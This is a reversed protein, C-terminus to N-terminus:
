TKYVSNHLNLLVCKSRCRLWGHTYRAVASVAKTNPLAMGTSQGRHAQSEPSTGRQHLHRPLTDEWLGEGAWGVARSHLHDSQTEAEEELAPGTWIWHGLWWGNSRDFLISLPLALHTKCPALYTVCKGSLERTMFATMSIHHTYTFTSGFCPHMAACHSPNM